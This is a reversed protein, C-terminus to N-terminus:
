SNVIGHRRILLKLIHIHVRLVYSSVPNSYSKDNFLQGPCIEMEEEFPPSRTVQVSDRKEEAGPVSQKLDWQEKRKREYTKLV